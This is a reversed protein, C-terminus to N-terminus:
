DKRRSTKAPRDDTFIARVPRETQLAGVVVREVRPHHIVQRAIETAAEMQTATEVKNIFVVVRVGAPAGKLGGEADTLLRAVDAPSLQSQLGRGTIESVLDPRHAISGLPADLADIGVLVVFLTTGPPVAPEHAAPAKVPLMKAGDAEVLVVNVEPRALLRAPLSLPVSKAKELGVDGIVLCPTTLERTQAHLQRTYYRNPLRHTEATAIRTTTTLVVGRGAAALEAGLAFLLSSKGGGGVLAVLEEGEGIGLAESLSRDHEEGIEM